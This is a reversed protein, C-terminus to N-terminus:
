VVQEKKTKQTKKQKKNKTKKKEKKTKKKRKTTIICFSVAIPVSFRQPPPTPPCQLFWLLSPEWVGGM